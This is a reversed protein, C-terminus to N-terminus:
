RKSFYETVLIYLEKEPIYFISPVRDVTNKFLVNLSHHSECVAVFLEEKSLLGSIEIFCFNPHEYTGNVQEILSQIEIFDNFQVTYIPLLTGASDVLSSECSADLKYSNLMAYAFNPVTTTRKESTSLMTTMIFFERKLHITIIPMVEM